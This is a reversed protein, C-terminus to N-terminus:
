PTGEANALVALVEAHCPLPACWCGLTKGRLEGLAAMLDPRGRLWQEYMAIAEARTAVRYTALTDTALHTFPNGWKSPRGVYVDHRNRVHVVLPHRM